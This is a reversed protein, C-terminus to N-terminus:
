LYSYTSNYIAKYPDYGYNEQTYGSECSVM